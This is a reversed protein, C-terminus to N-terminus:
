AGGVYAPDADLFFPKSGFAPASVVATLNIVGSPGFSSFACNTSLEDANKFSQPGIRFRIM